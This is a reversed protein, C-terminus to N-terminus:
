IALKYNNVLAVEKANALAEGYTKFDNYLPILKFGYSTYMGLKVTFFKRKKIIKVETQKTM